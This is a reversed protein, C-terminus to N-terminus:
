DGHADFCSHGVWGLRGTPEVVFCWVARDFPRPTVAVVLVPTGKRLSCVMRMDADGPVLWLPVRSTVACVAGPTM